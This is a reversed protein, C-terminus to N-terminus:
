GAAVTTSYQEATRVLILLPMFFSFSSLTDM